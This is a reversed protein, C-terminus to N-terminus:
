DMVRGYLASTGPDTNITSGNEDNPKVTHTTNIYASGTCGTHLGLRNVQKSVSIFLSEYMFTSHVNRKCTIKTMSDDTTTEVEKSRGHLRSYDKCSTLFSSQHGTHGTRLICLIIQVIVTQFDPKQRINLTTSCTYCWIPILISILGFRHLRLM